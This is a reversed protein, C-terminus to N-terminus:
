SKKLRKTKEKEVLRKLKSNKCFEDWRSKDIVGVNILGWILGAVDQGSYMVSEHLISDFEENYLGKVEIFFSGIKIREKFKRKGTSEERM